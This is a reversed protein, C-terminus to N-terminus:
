SVSSKERRRVLIGRILPFLASLLSLFLLSGAVPRTIFPWFSGRMIMGTDLATEALPGLIIGIVLPMLPFGYKELVFGLFGFIFMIYVDIMNNNIGFAGIVCLLFIIWNLIARHIT